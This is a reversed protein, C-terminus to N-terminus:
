VTAARAKNRETEDEIQKKLLDRTVFDNFYFAKPTVSWKVKTIDYNLKVKERKAAAILLNLKEVVLNIAEKADRGSVLYTFEVTHVMKPNIISPAKGKAVVHFWKDLQGPRTAEEEKVEPKTPEGVMAVEIKGEEVEAQPQKEKVRAM